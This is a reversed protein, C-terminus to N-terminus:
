GLDGLEQRLRRLVRCKAIRVAGPQMSLEDAVELATGGDVVVRWFAQWTRETFENRVQELASHLVFQHAHQEQSADGSPLEDPVLAFWVNAESGSPARPQRQRRRYHDYVKSRTITRLWGRFTDRPRDRRSRDINGAVAQFVEQLVDPIDQDQLAHGKCWHYVLPTYLAVM